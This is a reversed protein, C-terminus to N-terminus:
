DDKKQRKFYNRDFRKVCMAAHKLLDHLPNQAFYINPDPTENRAYCGFVVAHNADWKAKADKYFAIAEELTSPREDGRSTLFAMLAAHAEANTLLLPNTKDSM